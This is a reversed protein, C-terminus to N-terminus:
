VFSLGLSPGMQKLYWLAGEAAHEAATKKNPRPDGFCELVTTGSYGKIEIVVKFTFMRMHCPGEDSCCEYEPPKWHRASCINHLQSKASERKPEDEIRHSTNCVLGKEPEPVLKRDQAMDRGITSNPDMQITSLSSNGDDEEVENRKRERMDSKGELGQKAGCVPVMWTKPKACSIDPISSPDLPPIDKLSIFSKSPNKSMRKTEEM